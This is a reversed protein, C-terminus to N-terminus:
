WPVASSSLSRGSTRWEAYRVPSLVVSDGDPARLSITRAATVSARPSSSRRRRARAAPGPGPSTDDPRLRDAEASRVEVVEGAVEARDLARPEVRADLPVLRRADELRDPRVARGAEPGPLADRDPREDRAPVAIRAPDPPLLTHALMLRIPIWRSPASWSRSSRGADCTNGTPPWSADSAASTSGTEMATRATTRPRTAVPSFTTTKPAPGIPCDIATAATRGRRTRAAGRGRRSGGRRPADIPLRRRRRRSRRGPRPRRGRTPPRRRGRPRTRPSPRPRPRGSRPRSPRRWAPRTTTTPRACSSAGSRM